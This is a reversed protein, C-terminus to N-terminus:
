VSDAWFIQEAVPRTLILLFEDADLGFASSVIGPHSEEIADVIKKIEGSELTFGIIGWTIGAGDFNGQALGFGHGEFAATVQLSREDITPSQVGLLAAWTPADVSGTQPAGTDGQFAAVAAHTQEGFVGDVLGGLLGRAQLAAQVRRVVEGRCGVGCVMLAM